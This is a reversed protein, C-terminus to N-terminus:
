GKNACDAEDSLDIIIISSSEKALYFPLIFVSSSM